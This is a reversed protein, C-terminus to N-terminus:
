PGVDLNEQARDRVHKGATPQLPASQMGVRYARFPPRSVRREVPALLEEEWGQSAREPSQPAQDGEAAMRCAVVVLLMIALWCVILLLALTM